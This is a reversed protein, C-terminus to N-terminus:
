KIHLLSKNKQKSVIKETAFDPNLKVLPLTLYSLNQLMDSPAFYLVQTQIGKLVIHFFFKLFIQNPGLAGVSCSTSGGRFRKMRSNKLDSSM